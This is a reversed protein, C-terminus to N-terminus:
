QAHSGITLMRCSERKPSLYSAGTGLLSAEANGSITECVLGRGPPWPKGRAETETRQVQSGLRM